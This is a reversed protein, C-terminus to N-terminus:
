SFAVNLLQRHVANFFYGTERIDPAIQGGGLDECGYSRQLWSLNRDSGIAELLGM